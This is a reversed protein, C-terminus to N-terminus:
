RDRSRPLAAPPPPAPRRRSPPGPAEAEAAPRRRPAPAAAPPPPTIRAPDDARSPPLVRPRGTRSRSRSRFGGCGMAPRITRAKFCGASFPLYAPAMKPRAPIVYRGAAAEWRDPPLFARSGRAAGSMGRTDGPTFHYHASLRLHCLRRRDARAALLHGHVDRDNGRRDQVHPSHLRIGASLLRSTRRRRRASLLSSTRPSDRESRAMRLSARTPLVTDWDSERTAPLQRVHIIPRPATAPMRARTLAVTRCSCASARTSTRSRPIPSAVCSVVRPSASMAASNCRTVVKPSSAIRSACPSSSVKSFRRVASVASNPRAVSVTSSRAAAIPVSRRLAAIASALARSSGARPRSPRDRLPVVKVFSCCFTMRESKAVPRSASAIASTRSLTSECTPPVASAIRSVRPPARSLRPLAQPSRSSRVFLVRSNRSSISFSVLTSDEGSAARLAADRPPAKAPMPPGPRHRAVAEM